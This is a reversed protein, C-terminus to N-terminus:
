LLNSLEPPSYPTPSLTSQSRKSLAKEVENLIKTAENNVITAEKNVIMADNVDKIKNIYSQPSAELSAVNKSDKSM